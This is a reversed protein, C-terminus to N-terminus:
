YEKSQNNLMSLLYLAQEKWIRCEAMSKDEDGVWKNALACIKVVEESRLITSDEVADKNLSM